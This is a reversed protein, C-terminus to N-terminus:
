QNVAGLGKLFFTMTDTAKDYIIYDIVSHLATARDVTVSSNEIYDYVSQLKETTIQVPAIDMKNYKDELVALENELTAKNSKYEKLTDVGNIYADKVRKLKQKVSSIQKEITAPEPQYQPVPDLAAIDNNNIIEKLGELVYHEAKVASISNRCNCMGKVSKWCVFYPFERNKRKDYGRQYALTGDCAPCRMVGSLWHKQISLRKAHSQTATLFSYRENAKNWLETDIIPEHRGDVIITDGTTKKSHNGSYNWRIKGIYFPNQIMDVINRSEWKCGGRTRYGTNNIYAAIQSLAKEEIAFMHFCMRVMDVYETDPYPITDAGKDKKYGIPPRNNYGGSLAKQTMGRRVEGSLRISYYEDMWEFIREVLQGIFGDPLPESVSVVDVNNKKLLSKYVISEEQNRAFRSFKWVLIADYPHEKSKATAIMNQFQPRKEATRGSIGLDQYVDTLIMDNNVAYEKLLRIQADPSYEEQDETSVRIYACVIKSM